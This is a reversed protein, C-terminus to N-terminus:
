PANKLDFCYLLEQDRLYLKGNAVVPHTWARSNQRRKSQEPLSFRGTEQWDPSGAKIRVCTGDKEAYCYFQGDAFTISGKGLKKSKWVPNGTLFDLCVWGDGSDTYGYLKGEILIVGGHHNTMQKGSYVEEAKVGESGEPTLKILGCGSGYGSTVFVHDNHVVPTPIIATGNKGLPSRWLLKGDKARLGVVGGQVMQIYQKVGAAVATVISSYHARDNMETNAWVVKGTNKDLAVIVGKDGGPTCLVWDGDVLPSECFGWGPLSGKFDKVLNLSWVKKGTATELCVLDGKAGIVYLKDGDVAPSSRPGGGYGNNYYEGIATRWRPSGTKVDLAFVYEKNKVEDDASAEKPESGISYLTDGVVAPGSYGIGADKFTWLLKPGKEPITAILGTEQSIDDRNPGRWQPWDAAVAFLALLAFPALRRPM